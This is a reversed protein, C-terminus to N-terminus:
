QASARAQEVASAVRDTFEEPSEKSLDVTRSGANGGGPKRPANKGAILRKNGAKVVGSLLEYARDVDPYLQGPVEEKPFNRAYVNLAEREEKSFELGEKGELTKIEDQIYSEVAVENEQRAKDAEFQQLRELAQEGPDVFEDDTEQEPLEYGFIGLVASDDYGLQSLIARAVDPNKSRLADLVRANSEAERRAEALGQQTQTFKAQFGKIRKEVTERQDDPIGSYDFDELSEEGGSQDSEDPTETVESEAEGSEEDLEPSGGKIPPWGREVLLARYYDHNPQDELSPAETM